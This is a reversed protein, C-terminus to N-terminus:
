KVCVIQSIYGRSVGFEKSLKSQNIKGIYGRGLVPGHRKRIEIIQNKTLRVRPNRGKRLMDQMNDKQNGLFLHDPRICNAVDCKHLVFNGEPISGYSLEWVYRHVPVYCYNIRIKGYGGRVKSGKWLWCSGTKDVKSFVSEIREKDTLIM